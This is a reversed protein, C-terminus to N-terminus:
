GGSGGRPADRDRRRRPRREADAKRKWRANRRPSASRLRWRVWHQYGLTPVFGLLFTVLLLLPLNM